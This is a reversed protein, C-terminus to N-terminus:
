TKQKILHIIAKEPNFNKIFLLQNQHFYIEYDM